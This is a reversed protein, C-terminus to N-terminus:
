FKIMVKAKLIDSFLIKEKNQVTVKGKGIPKPERTKWRLTIAEEDVDVLNAEFEKNDSTRVELSRGINKKYQRIHILPSAAGASAVELSFDQEERDLNHEIGRSIFVCDDVIVGNDGDIVVKITNNESINLDILFLDKRENLSNELLAKVKKKFMKTYFSPVERGRM